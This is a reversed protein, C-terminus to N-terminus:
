GRGIRLQPARPTRLELAQEFHRLSAATRARTISAVCDRPVVVEFGRMRADFVTAAVCQDSTVGTLVLRRVQLEHLLSELPTAFFASHKPKLVFYDDDDPMLQRTITLAVGGAERSLHVQERFDSRWRGRNDNVYVVPWRAAGCRAKLRAIRPALAVAQHALPAADPFDWTSIMDIILLASTARTSRIM